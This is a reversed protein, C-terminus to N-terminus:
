GGLLKGGMKEQAQEAEYQTTEILWNPGQVWRGGDNLPNKQMIEDRKSDSEFLMVIGNSGCNTFVWGHDAVDNDTEACDVDVAEGYARALSNVDDYSADKEVGSCATTLLALLTIAALHKKM